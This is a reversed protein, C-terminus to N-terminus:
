LALLRSHRLRCSPNTFPDADVDPETTEIESVKGDIGNGACRKYTKGYPEVATFFRFSMILRFTVRQEVGSVDVM